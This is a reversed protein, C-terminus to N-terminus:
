CVTTDCPDRSDKSSVPWQGTDTPRIQRSKFFTAAYGIGHAAEQCFLVAMSKLRYRNLRRARAYNNWLLNYLIARLVSIPSHEPYCRRRWILARARGSRMCRELYIGFTSPHDHVVSMGALLVARSALELRRGLEVDSYAPLAQDFGGAAALASRRYAANGGNVYPPGPLDSSAGDDVYWEGFTEFYYVLDRLQSYVNGPDHGIVRGGFAIHHPYVELGRLLSSVWTDVLIADDDLFAVIPSEAHRIGVNRAAAIGVQHALHVTRYPHQQSVWDYKSCGDFVLIIEARAAAHRKLQKELLACLRACQGSRGRTIIVISLGKLNASSSM